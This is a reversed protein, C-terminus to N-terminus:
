QGEKPKPTPLSISYGRQLLLEFVTRAEMNSLRGLPTCAQLMRVLAHLEDTTMPQQRPHPSFETHPLDETTV